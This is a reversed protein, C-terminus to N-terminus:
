QATTTTNGAAEISEQTYPIQSILLQTQEYYDSLQDRIDKNTTKNFLQKVSAAYSTLENQMVQSFVLDFTSTAKATTFQQDTKANQKLANEKDGLARGNKALLATTRAEQTRMAYEATVALNKTSQQVGDRAGQNSVRVLEHQAQVLGVLDETNAGKPGLLNIIVTLVIMLIVAGGIVLGLILGLNSKASKKPPKQPNLIFDYPNPNSAPPQYPAQPQYSPNMGIM